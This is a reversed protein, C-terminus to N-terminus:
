PIVTIVQECAFGVNLTVQPDAQVMTCTSPCLVVRTPTNRNDYRWGTSGTCEPDYAVTMPDKTGSTYTLIVKEKDFTRGAPPPPILIDCAIAAGRIENIAASFARQTAEPSGTDLLFLTTGGATAIQSLNAVVEPAGAIPPNKVGIVYTSIGEALAGKVINAGNAITNSDGCGQPYGDTAMVLVYKGPTVAQQAHVYALAGTIAPVTPTGNGDPGKRDIVQGFVPSPLATMPVVPKAYTDAVCKTADDNTPFFVLSASIGQSSPDSFFGKTAAVVPDWKLTKDHWAFDEAGMSGSVDFVFVLHTPLVSAAVQETKCAGVDESGADRATEGAGPPVEIIPGSAGGKAGGGGALGGGAGGGAAQAGDAKNGVTGLDNSCAASITLTGLASLSLLLGIRRM